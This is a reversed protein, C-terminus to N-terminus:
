GYRMARYFERAKKGNAVEAHIEIPIDNKGEAKYAELRHHGDLIYLDGTDKAKVVTIPKLKEGKRIKERYMKVGGSKTESKAQTTKIKSILSKKSSSGGSIFKGDEARPHESEDFDIEDFRMLFSDLKDNMLKFHNIVIENSDARISDSRVGISSGDKDWVGASCIAIHDLLAADKEVLITKGDDTVLKSNEVDKLVIAPSTSLDEETMQEIAEDDYIKAIAWVEDNKIYPIFVSGIIRKAYEKSDLVSKEPHEWVVPLGNCRALFDDNLYLDPSRWVHEKLKSRYAMGSGTIRIDFLSVNAYRQPSTLEGKVMARALDLENMSLRQIAVRAGPHMDQWLSM